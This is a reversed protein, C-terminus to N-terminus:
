ALSFGYLWYFLGLTIEPVPERYFIDNHSRKYVFIKLCNGENSHVFIHTECVLDLM